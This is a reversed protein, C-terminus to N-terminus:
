ILSFVSSREVFQTCIEIKQRAESGLSMKEVLRRVAQRGLEQKFVHITTLAPSAIEGYPLNDFGIISVDEPIKYGMEKLSKMAGLAIIDNDVVYATPVKNAQNSLYVTMDKYAGDMTPTLKVQYEQDISLGHRQMARVYGCYRYYFNNIPIASSIYGIKTHGKKILYEVSNCVSDTNNIIITDFQQHEFWSDLIVVPVMAKEFVKVDEKTLETALLLIATSHDSLVMSLNYEFDPDDCNLNLISLAFGNRRCEKEIGEILESFFPTESVVKGHKKYIVFRIAEIKNESLYGTDKAIKLIKAATEKNVGKKGNLVNSITAPSFGSLESLYRINVKDRKM